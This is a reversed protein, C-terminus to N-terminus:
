KINVQVTEGCDEPAGGEGKAREGCDPGGFGTPCICFTCNRSNRFGGNLCNIKPINACLALIKKILFFLECDCSYYVNIAKLDTFIPGYNNGMSHQYQPKTAM